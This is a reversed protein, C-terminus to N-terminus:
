SGAVRLPLVTGEADNRLREARPIERLAEVRAALSEALSDFLHGYRDLTVTISSHGLQAQIQKPHGGAAIM